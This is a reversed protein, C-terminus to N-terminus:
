SGLLLRDHGRGIWGGPRAHHDHAGAEAAQIRRPPEGALRDLHGHDILAVVMQELRQEVLDRGGGQRGGVDGPRDARDQAALGVGRDLEAPDGADIPGAMRHEDVALAAQGEVVQHERGAGPVGIEAM